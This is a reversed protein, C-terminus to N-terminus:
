NHLRANSVLNNEGYLPSLKPAFELPSLRWNPPLCFSSAFTKSTQIEKGKVALMARSRSLSRGAQSRVFGRVLRARQM